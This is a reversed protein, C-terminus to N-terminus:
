QVKWQGIQKAFGSNASLQISVIKSTAPVEYTVFGLRSEGPPIKTDSAYAVGATVNGYTSVFVQGDADVLMSGGTPSSDSLTSGTNTIRWQVAVFRYGSKPKSFESSPEAPDVLKVVTADFKEGEFGTLAITDGVKAVTPAAPASSPAPASPGAPTSAHGGSPTTAGGDCRKRWEGMPINPDDCNMAAVDPTKAQTTVGGKSASGCAGLLVSGVVTM